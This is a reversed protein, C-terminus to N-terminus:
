QSWQNRQLLFDIFNKNEMGHDAELGAVSGMMLEQM